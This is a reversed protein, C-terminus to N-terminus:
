LLEKYGNSTIIMLVSENAKIFNSHTAHLLAGLVLSSSREAYIGKKSLEAQYLEGKNSPIVIVTGNSEQIAKLSQYTVTTGGVSPTHVSDGTFNEIYNAGTIVLQLRAFPEVAILKPLKNSIGFEYAEKFGEWIGWLLDGRSNPIILYDPINKFDRIIEFAIAKYGQVGFPNSGVPPNMYNTAPYWRGEKVMNRMHGWREMASAKIELQSGTLEIAQNWIPHIDHTTLVVCPMDNAAAYTAISVGANGSSAVAVREAGTEIARQIIFPSMRDKHSGTPNQGENKIWIDVNLTKSLAELKVNPTNGEGLSRYNLYPFLEFYNRDFLHSYKFSISSPFGQEFCVPCGEFYDSIIYQKNCKICYMCEINRNTMLFLGWNM